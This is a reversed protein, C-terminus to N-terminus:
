KKKPDIAILRHRAQWEQDPYRGNSAALFERYSNSANVKDGLHDFATARLFLTGPIEPLYKARIDLAKLVLAYNQNESAAFALDAYADALDGKLQVAQILEQQAEQFKRQQLLVSGLGHHLEADKPSEQLLTRFQTEAKTYQKDQLYMWALQQAARADGPSFKLAEEFEAIAEDRRHLELLVRGLQTHASAVQAAPARTQGNNSAQTNEVLALYKRLAQEAEDFRKAEMCVNALGAAAEVSKPDLRQAARYEKEATSFDKAQDAIMAASLHPEPDNPQLQAVKAYAELAKTPDSKRFLQGLALWARAINQNANSTPKLTTAARLYKEASIDGAQALMLGLNLNSEFVDPKAALSKRYADIAEQRRNTVDYVFGLDYWARFNEPDAKVSQRLAEEAATYDKKDIASEARALADDAVRTRRVTKGSQIPRSPSATQAGAHIALALAAAGIARSAATSM